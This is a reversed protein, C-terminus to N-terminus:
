ELYIVTGTPEVFSNPVNTIIWIIHTNLGEVDPPYFEGDTFILALEPNDQRLTNIIDQVNTGGGGHLTLDDLTDGPEFSLDDHIETDFSILRFKDPQMINWVYHIEPMIRDLLPQTMSGSVDVAGTIQGLGESRLRPLYFDPMFRKNPRSNSYDDQRWADLHNHLITYWPLKPNLIKELRKRVGDPVSGPDNNMDAQHVAKVINAIISERHEDASMGPPPALILDMSGGTFNPGRSQVLDEYIKMTSWGTYKPDALGVVPMKYGLKKLRLNIYHDGAENYLVPNLAGEFCRELHELVTHEVEHLLLFLAQAQDQEDIFAPCLWITLGNTAATPYTDTWVIRQSALISSYFTTNRQMMLNLKAKSLKRKQDENPEVVNVVMQKAGMIMEDRIEAPTKTKRQKPAAPIGASTPQTMMRTLM